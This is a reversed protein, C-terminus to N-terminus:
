LLAIVYRSMVDPFLPAEQRVPKSRHLPRPLQVPLVDPGPGADVVVATTDDGFGDVTPCDTVSVAVTLVPVPVGVPLTCNLSPAFLKPEACVKFPEPCAVREM